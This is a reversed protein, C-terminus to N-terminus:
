REIVHDYRRETTTISRHRLRNRVDYLTNGEEENMMRYAVSHRFAHPTVDDPDGRSGDLLYPEVGAERAVTRLLDRVGQTGIRDRERSPFLAETDKWRSGLYASLTRTTDPALGLRAVKPSNDNPYDKQNEAPVFLLSNDERLHDVDVAVLEAVRLGTDYLLALLADDRQQLYDPRCRYVASRLAEVQEPKLWVSAQTKSNTNASM